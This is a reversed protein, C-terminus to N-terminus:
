FFIIVSLKIFNDPCALVYVCVSMGVCLCVCLSVKYQVCLSNTSFLVNLNQIWGPFIAWGIDCMAVGSIPPTLHLHATSVSSLHRPPQLLREPLCSAWQEDGQDPQWTLYVLELNAQLLQFCCWLKILLLSLPRNPTILSHNQLTNTHVCLGHSCIFEVSLVKINKWWKIGQCIISSHSTPASTLTDSDARTQSQSCGTEWENSIM